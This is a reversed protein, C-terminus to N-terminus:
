DIEAKVTLKKMWKELDGEDFRIRGNPLRIHPISQEGVWKYLTKSCVGLYECAEKLTIPRTM